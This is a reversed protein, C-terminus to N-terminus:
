TNVMSTVCRYPIRVSELANWGLELSRDARNRLIYGITFGNTIDRSYHEVWQFPQNAGLNEFVLALEAVTPLRLGALACTRLAEAQTSDAHLTFDFCLDANRTRVLGAPCRQRLSTLFAPALDTGNISGTIINAHAGAPPRHGSITNQAVQSNSSVIIAAVATGGLSVFLALISIVLSPTIRPRLRLM